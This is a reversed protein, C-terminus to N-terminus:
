LKTRHLALRPSVSQTGSSTIPGTIEDITAFLCDALRYPVLATCSHTGHKFCGLLRSSPIRKM